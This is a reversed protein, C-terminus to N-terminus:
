VTSCPTLRPEVAREKWLFHAKGLGGELSLFWLHNKDNLEM